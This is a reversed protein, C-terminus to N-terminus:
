GVRGSSRARLYDELRSPGPRAPGADGPRAPRAAPGAASQPPGVRVDIRGITVTVEGPAGPGAAQREAGSLGAPGARALGGAPFEGAARVGAVRGLYRAPGGQVLSTAPAHSGWGATGDPEQDPGPRRAEAAAAAHWSGPESGPARSPSAPGRSVPGPSAPDPREAAPGSPTRAAASPSAQPPGPQGAARGRAASQWGPATWPGAEDQGEGERGEGHGTEGREAHGTGAATVRGPWPRDGDAAGLWGVAPSSTGAAGAPWLSYARATGPRPGPDTPAAGTAPGGPTAGTAAAAAAEGTGPQRSGVRPGASHGPQGAEGPAPPRGGPQRAGGPPAAAAEAEGALEFPMGTDAGAAREWPPEAGPPVPEFRSRPRARLSPEGGTLRRLRDAYATM